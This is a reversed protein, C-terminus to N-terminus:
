RTGICELYNQIFQPYKIVPKVPSSVVSHELQGIAEELQLENQKCSYYYGEKKHLLALYEQETQGPTPVLLAKNGTFAIDMLTSYGSRSILIPKNILINYLHNADLHNVM